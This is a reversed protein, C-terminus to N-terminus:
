EDADVTFPATDKECENYEYRHHIKVAHVHFYPAGFVAILNKPTLVYVEGFKRLHYGLPCKQPIPFIKLLM